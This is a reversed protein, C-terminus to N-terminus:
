CRHTRQAQGPRYVSQKNYNYHTKIIPTCVGHRHRIEASFHLLINSICIDTKYILVKTVICPVLLTLISRFAHLSDNRCCHVCSVSYRRM